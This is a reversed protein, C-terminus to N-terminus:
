GFERFYGNACDGIFTAKDWQAFRSRLWISCVQDLTRKQPLQAAADLAQTFPLNPGNVAGSVSPRFASM